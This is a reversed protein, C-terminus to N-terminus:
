ASSARRRRRPRRDGVTVERGPLFRRSWCRSASRRAILEACARGLEGRSRVLSRGTVGKSSGEALPKVFLPRTLDVADLRTRRPRRGRVAGDALRPRARGAQGDGQRPHPRLHAPRRLHLAPRVARVAGPVQAERSRGRVGEAINFVLDWREGGVLRRALEVAAASGSSRTGSRSSACGALGAITDEGDFEM